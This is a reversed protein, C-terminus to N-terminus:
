RRKAPKAGQAPRPRRAVESLKRPDAMGWMELLVAVKDRAAPYLHTFAPKALAALAARGLAEIFAAYSLAAEGGHAAATAAFIGRLERRALFTPAIDFDAFLELFRRAELAAPPPAGPAEAAELALYHSFLAFLPKRYRDFLSM